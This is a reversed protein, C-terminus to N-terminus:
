KVATIEGHIIGYPMGQNSLPQMKIRMQFLIVVAGAVQAEKFIPHSQAM